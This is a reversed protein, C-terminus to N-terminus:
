KNLFELGKNTLYIYRNSEKRSGHGRNVLELEVLKSICRLFDTEDLKIESRLKERLM